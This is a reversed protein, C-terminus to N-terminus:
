LNLKKVVYKRLQGFSEQLKEDVTEHVNRSTKQIGDTVFQNWLEHYRSVFEQPLADQELARLGNNWTVPALQSFAAGALCWPLVLRSPVSTLVKGLLSPNRALLGTQTNLPSDFGWNNRNSLVRGSFFAGLALVGAPVLLEQEEYSDTLIHQSVYDRANKWENTAASKQTELETKYINYKHVVSNRIGGFWTSLARSDYIQNGSALTTAKVDSGPVLDPFLPGQSSVVSPKEEDYFQRSM